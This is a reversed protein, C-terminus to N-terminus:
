LDFFFPSAITFVAWLLLVLPAGIRMFDAFRYRGPGLVLLNTQYAIPTAFSCNAAFLVALLFATPDAGTLDAASLAVPAFLIATANNSLANTIVAVTLFLLSLLGWAGFPAALWVAGAAIMDAGGTVELAGALAFSSGALLFIRFDVARAAQRPRLCGTAVMLSAGAIAAHAIPLLQTAAAAVVALFILRAIGAKETKPLEHSSWELPLVDRQDRLSRLDQPEGLILLVDGPELRIDAVGDRAMRSSRRVALVVTGPPVSYSTHALTRGVLRSGPAVAAEVIVLEQPAENPLPRAGTFMTPRIGRAATLLDALESKTASVIVIDGAQLTVGAFPPRLPRDDRMILRVTVDKLDDFRGDHARAGALRDGFAVEIQAIFQRTEAKAGGNEAAVRKPLLLPGAVSVYVLGTAALVLGMPAPSFFGLAAEPHQAAAEAVLLNTSSGILTTMGALISVFSLPILVRSPAAGLRDAVMTLVPLFMLVVPTNNMFASIVFVAGLVWVLTTAPRARAMAALRRAPRDLAGTQFVGQAVVLLAMVAILAPSSFGSLIEHAGYAPHPTVHFLILLGAILGASIIEMSWRELCYLAVVLVALALIVWVQWDPAAPAATVPTTFM